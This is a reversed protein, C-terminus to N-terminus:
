SARPAVAPSISAAKPEIVPPANALLAAVMAPDVPKVLHHDFGAQQSRQRHEDQGWGTTAVLLVHPGLSARLHEATDYGSLNPMGLDLLVADPRFTEAIALATRGDHATRVDHGRLRMVDALCDAADQNDDVVLVRRTSVAKPLVDDTPADPDTSAGAVFAPLRVVFESGAGPGDSLAEISGGHMDVLRKALTLGIGLGGHAKEVSRDVQAFMDFIRTLMDAPIGEGTDRVRVVAGSPDREGTISIRGGRPTYKAANNLLNSFVQALRTPDSDLYIPERSFTVTLEHGGAEIMPRSTEVARQIIASLEQAERRLEIKGRTIRSVDLLDDVLRVMQHIQRDMVDCARDRRSRDEPALRILQLATRIPALPNRLEHALVALFEDKQRDSERADDYLRANEIAIGTRYALEMAVQLDSERYVRGSDSTLFTIAGIIHAGVKIPVAISSRLGAARLIALHEDDDACARLLDDTVEAVLVGQGTALAAQPGYAKIDKAADLRSRDGCALALRRLAGDDEVIDVACGDAFDPVALRAVTQLATPYDTLSSLTRGAEALFRAAQTARKQDDVDTCTGFWRAVHGESDRVPLARGLHWRYARTKRDFFRYEIEYPQGTRVAARWTDSSRQVDDPHVIRIWSDNSAACSEFGTFDFWRENYYDPVGDPTAMWVMQPLSDALERFLAEAQRRETVDSIVAVFGRVTGDAALDPALEGNMIRMGLQEYPLELEIRTHEGLLAAAMHPRLGEFAAAGIVDRVTKGVIDRPSQGFREAFSRNVFLYRYDCDCHAIYIPAVDTVLRLEAERDNAAREADLRQVGFAVQSAIVDALTREYEGFTRPEDFYLMFKGIVGNAKKLPVFVMGGIREALITPLFPALGRDTRVDPVVIIAADNIDPRWPSHGEVASRYADSLGRWAKFRMIGDPEFLLISARSVGLGQEFADLAAEFIGEVEAAHTIAAMLVGLARVGIVDDIIM